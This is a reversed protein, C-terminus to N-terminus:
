VFFGVYKYLSSVKILVTAFAESGATDIAKEIICELFRM